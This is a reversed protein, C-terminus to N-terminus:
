EARKQHLKHYSTKVVEIYLYGIASFFLIIVWDLLSLPAVKFLGSFFPTYLIIIQLLLAILTTLILWRNELVRWGLPHDLSRSGFAVFKEFFILFTFTVAQAKMLGDFDLYLVFLLLASATFLLPVDFLFLRMGRWFSESRPRPKREMVDSGIPDAALALAPLGDTILNIWLLEIATLPLPYGLLVTTLIVLVEAINGSLLYAVCKRINDYIGRGEKIAGVISAFNDDALVVDSVEKTVDTGTIGMAIGIDARKLAPADNVGDGTMAVIKGRAKWANVIRLKHEPLVRAYVRIREVKKILEEDSMSDLASGTVVIDNPGLLGVETAIARATEENDGTVMVVEIGAQKCLRIADPVEERPADIMGALGIFTLDKEIESPSQPLKTFSREAFGLVRLADGAMQSNAALIDKRAKETLPKRKGGDIYHSCRELLIEPAGKVLAVDGDGVFRYVVTMMKRESDFPIERVFKASDILEDRHVGGKEALVLLAAETPDGVVSVSGDKAFVLDSNNCLAAIRLLRNLSPISEVEIQKTGVLFRGTTSYGTGEVEVSKGAVFLKRVTMENKTITGTKDTCIVNASGLTEVALLKRVIANRRSMRQVGLALAITIVAPLGEPIAAVALSVSTLFMDVPPLGRLLGFLFIVFCAFLVIIALQKGLKEVEEKLPTEESVVTQVQSAIKGFETNMGTATVVGKGRGKIVSTGAFVMNIRKPVQVGAPLVVDADKQVGSSEGTLSAENTELMISEIVRCDAPVITGAELLIVDGPVLLRAPASQAKKDRIVLATPATMKRLMEVAKEARYEQITGLLANILLIAGIAMADLWEGLFASVVAAAILVFILFNAFQSIFIEYITRKKEERLENFGFAKVRESAEKESLGNEKSSGLKRLAENASIAHWSIDEM